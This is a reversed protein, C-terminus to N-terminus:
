VAPGAGDFGGWEGQGGRGPCNLDELPAESHGDASSVGPLGETSPRPRKNPNLKANPDNALPPPWYCLKLLTTLCENLGNLLEDQM